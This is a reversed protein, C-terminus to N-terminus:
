YKKLIPIIDASLSISNSSKSSDFLIDDYDASTRLKKLQWIKSNLDRFHSLCNKKGSKRIYSEVTNILFEHSGIRTISSQSELEQQTKGMSHLWIHKLLQYCGYYAGHAVAPYWCKDHLLKAAETFIDSKNQLNSM